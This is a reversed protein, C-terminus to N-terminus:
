VRLLYGSPNSSDMPQLIADPIFEAHESLFKYLAMRPGLQNTDEVVLYSGKTVLKHYLNLENLVHETTHESDLSVLVPSLKGIGEVVKSFINPDVSSGILRHIYTNEPAIYEEDTIDITIVKADPIRMLNMMHAFFLASGGFRTGCEVIVKPRIKWMMEQYVMVDSAFKVIRIGMYQGTM